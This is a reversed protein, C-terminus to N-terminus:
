GGNDGHFDPSGAPWTPFSHFEADVKPAMPGLNHIAKRDPTKECAQATAMPMASLCLLAGGVAAALGRQVKSM